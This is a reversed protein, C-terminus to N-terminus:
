PKGPGVIGETIARDHRLELETTLAPDHITKLLRRFLADNRRRQDYTEDHYVEHACADRSVEEDQAVTEPDRAKRDVCAGFAADRRGRAAFEALLAEAQALLPSVRQEEVAIWAAARHADQARVAARQLGAAAESCSGQRRPGCADEVAAVAARAREAALWATALGAIPTGSEAVEKMTGLSARTANAELARQFRLGAVLDAAELRRDITQIQDDDATIAAMRLLRAAVHFHGQEIAREAAHIQAQTVGRDAEACAGSSPASRCVEEFAAAAELFSGQALLAEAM